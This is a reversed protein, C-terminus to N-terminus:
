FQLILFPFSLKFALSHSHKCTLSWPQWKRIWPKISSNDGLELGLRPKGWGLRTRRIHPFFMVKLAPSHNAAISTQELFLHMKWGGCVRGMRKLVRDTQGCLVSFLHTKSGETPVHPDAGACLALTAPGWGVERKGRQSSSQSLSLLFSQNLM